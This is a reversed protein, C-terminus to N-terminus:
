VTDNILKLYIHLGVESTLPGNEGKNAFNMKHTMDAALTVGDKAVHNVGGLFGM